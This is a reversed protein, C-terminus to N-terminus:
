RVLRKVSHRALAARFDSGAKAEFPHALEFPEGPFPEWLHELSMKAGM